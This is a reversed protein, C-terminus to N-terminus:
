FVPPPPRQYLFAFFPSFFSGVAIRAQLTVSVAATDLSESAPALLPATQSLLSAPLRCNQVCDSSATWFAGAGTAQGAASKRCCAGHARGHCCTAAEPKARATIPVAYVATLCVLLWLAIVRVLCRGLQRPVFM